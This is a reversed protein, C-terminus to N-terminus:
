DNLLWYEKVKDIPLKAARHIDATLFVFIDIDLSEAMYIIGRLLRQNVGRVVGGHVKSADEAWKKSLFLGFAKRNNENPLSIYSGTVGRIEDDDDNHSEMLTWFPEGIIKDNPLLVKIKAALIKSVLPREGAELTHIGYTKAYKKAGEQFGSSSVIVGTCNGIDRLTSELVKINDISIPRKHYKCEVIVRHKIEALKYEFYVDVQNEQGSVGIVKHNRFVEINKGDINLLEQYFYQVLEEFSRWDMM